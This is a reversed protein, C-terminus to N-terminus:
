NQKSVMLSSRTQLWIIPRGKILPCGLNSLLSILHVSVSQDRRMQPVPVCLVVIIKSRISGFDYVRDIGICQLMIDDSLRKADRILDPVLKKPMM